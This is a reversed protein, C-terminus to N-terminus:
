TYTLINYIFKFCSQKPFVGNFVLQQFANLLAILM